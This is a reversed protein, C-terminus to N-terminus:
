RAHARAPRQHGEPRRADDRHAQRHDAGGRGLRVAAAQDAPGAPRCRVAARLHAHGPVDQPLGRARGDKRAPDAAHHPLGARRRALAGAGAGPEPPEIDLRLAPAGAACRSCGDGAPAGARRQCQALRLPGQALRRRRHAQADLRPRAPGQPRGARAGAPAVHAAPRHLPVADDRHYRPPRRRGGRRARRAGRGSAVDRALPAVPLAGDQRWLSEYRERMRGRHLTRHPRGSADQETAGGGRRSGGQLRPTQCHGERRAHPLMHARGAAM